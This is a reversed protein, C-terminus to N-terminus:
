QRINKENISIKMQAAEILDVGLKDAIRILYIQIDALEQEVESLKEPPLNKSEKETLWQAAGARGAGAANTGRM